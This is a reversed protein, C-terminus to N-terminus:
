SGDAPAGLPKAFVVVNSEYEVGDWDTCTVLVLRGRGHDQGFLEQAHRALEAKSYVRKQRIVYRMTGRKSIVDVLDGQRLDALRNMSAGGTHVTHGTIVTQGGAAGPKASDLWWGVEHYDRPPDLARDVMQIPVVPATVHLTPMSLRVPAGPSLATYRPSGAAADSGPVLFSGVVSGGALVAVLLQLASATAVAYRGLGAFRPRRRKPDPTPSM